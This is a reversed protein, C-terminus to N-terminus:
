ALAQGPEIETKEMESDLAQRDGEIEGELEDWFPSHSLVIASRELAGLERYRELYGDMEPKNDLYFSIADFVQAASVQEYLLGPIDEPRVEDQWLAVVDRVPVVTEVIIPEGEVISIESAALAKSARTIYRTTLPTAAMTVM